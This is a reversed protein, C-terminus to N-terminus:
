SGNYEDMFEKFMDETTCDLSHNDYFWSPIASGECYFEYKNRGIWEAFKFMLERSYFPINNKIISKLPWTFENKKM